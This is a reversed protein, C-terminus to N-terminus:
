AMAVSSAEDLITIGEKALVRQVAPRLLLRRVLGTWAPYDSAMPLEIREGWYYFVLLYPDVISYGGPLAWDRGDALLSEIYAYQERVNVRGKAIVAPFLAADEVYRQPRWLQGYSIGHVASSLWSMWELCRAQGAPDTPLMSVEPHSRALHFLIASAETLADSTGGMRGPVPHLVPVRRKPNIRGFAETDTDKGGFASTHAVQFPIGIEELVIHPAMSCAGPSYYLTYM